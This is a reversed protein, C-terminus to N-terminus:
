VQNILSLFISLAAWHWDKAGGAYIYGIVIIYLNVSIYLVCWLLFVQFHLFGTYDQSTQHICFLLITLNVPIKLTKTDKCLTNLNQTGTRM